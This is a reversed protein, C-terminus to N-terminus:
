VFVSATAHMRAKTMPALEQWVRRDFRFCETSKLYQKSENRGGIVVIMEGTIVATCAERKSNMSPLMRCEGTGIRYSFVKNLANGDKDQGGIVVLNDGHCVVAMQSVEFPLATMEKCKGENIDFSLVTDVSGKAKPPGTRGGVVLIKDKCLVTGHGAIPQPMRCVLKSAYPSTISIEYIGDSVKGDDENDGGVMIVRNEYFVTGHRNCKFPLKAAIDFWQDSEHDINIKEMTDTSATGTFGGNVVFVNRYVFSSPSIRSQKMPPLSRWKNTARNYIEASYLYSTGDHGGAVVIDAKPLCSPAPERRVSLKKIEENMHTMAEKMTAVVEDQASQRKEMKKASKKASALQDKIEALSGKIEEMEKKLVCGHTDTKKHPVNEGCEDCKVQRFGCVQREHHKKDKRNIVSPCGPFSCKMPAFGCEHVHGNLHALEVLHRCGRAAYDCSIKLMSLYNAVIKSPEKLQKVTLPESCVPCTQSNEELHRRICPTCYYDENKRCQVPYKLVNGCLRCDFSADVVNQFRKHDYGQELSNM